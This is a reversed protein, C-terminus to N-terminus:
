VFSLLLDNIKLTQGANIFTTTIQGFVVVQGGTAKDCLGLYGINGWSGSATPFIVTGASSTGNTPAGFTVTVRAYAAGTVEHGSPDGDVGPASNFAALHLGAMSFPQGRFVNCLLNAIPDSITM